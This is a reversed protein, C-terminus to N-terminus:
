SRLEKLRQELQARLKADSIWKGRLAREIADAVHDPAHAVRNETGM